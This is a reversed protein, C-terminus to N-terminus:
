FRVNPRLQKDRSYGTQVLWSVFLVAGIGVTNVTVYGWGQPPIPVVLRWLSLLLPHILYVGFSARGLSVLWTEGSLRRLKRKSWGIMAAAAFLGLGDYSLEFWGDDPAYGKATMAYLAAYGLGFLLAAAGLKRSHREAQASLSAYNLGFWGGLAFFVAYSCAWLYSFPVPHVLRGFAYFLAQAATGVALLRLGSSSRLLVYRALWPFLAYFQMIIVLFYLHYSAGGTVFLKAFYVPDVMMQQGHALWQNVMYYVITWGVYPVLVSKIRRKYFALTSAKDWVAPAGYFLVLGSVFIFVPVAFACMKNIVLLLLQPAGGGAAASGESTGHLLVVAAIAAARVLDLEYLKIKGV